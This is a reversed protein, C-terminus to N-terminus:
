LLREEIMWDATLRLGDKLYFNPKFSFDNFFKAPDCIWYRHELEIATTPEFYISRVGLRQAAHLAFKLLAVSSGPIPILRVKKQLIESMCTYLENWSYVAGDSFFYAADTTDSQAATILADVFDDIFSLSIYRPQRGLNLALGRKVLKFHFLIRRDGPGYIKSPRMIIYPVEPASREVEKEAELKTKGYLTCPTM